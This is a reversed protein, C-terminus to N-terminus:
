TLRLKLWFELFPLAIRYSYNSGYILGKQKLSNLAGQVGGGRSLQHKKIYERSQPSDTPDLALSELMRIQSSPLLTLLTEFTISIDEVLALMSRHVHHACILNDSYSYTQHDLWIRQALAIADGLHGQVYSLFLSIAEDESSFCLNEAQMTKVLWQQVVADKLPLLYIVELNSEYVWPEAVPSVLAYSVRDHHQIVQRLYTEWKGQRDWSRIHPFNQFIIVVRCALKESLFQPLTLLAELLQWEKGAPSHWVMQVRRNPSIEITLPHDISWIHLLKIDEPNSFCDTISNAFIRLFQKTSTSRLCDIELIRANAAIAAERLLTRRGIGPVGVLVFDRDQLLLDCIQQLETERSILHGPIFPNNNM